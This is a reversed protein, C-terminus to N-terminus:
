NAQTGEDAAVFGRETLRRLSGDGGASEVYGGRALRHLAERWRAEVRPGQGESFEKGGTSISLGQNTEVVLITGDRKAAEALLTRAESSLDATEGRPGAKAASAAEGAQLGDSIRSVPTSSLIRDIHVQYAAAPQLTIGFQAGLEGVLQHIQAASDLRLANLNSLPGGLLAAPTGPALLPLLHREAGWRAGLEFLVYLSHMSADSVIGLFADAAYVERRLQQNTDAGGPLRYGDVSTCRIDRAELNLASRVLGVLEGALPADESAHSIFLRVTPMTVARATRQLAGDDIRLEGSAASIPEQPTTQTEPGSHSRSTTQRARGLSELTRLLDAYLRSPREMREKGGGGQSWIWAWMGALTRHPNPNPRDVIGRARLDDLAEDAQMWVDRYRIASAEDPMTARYSPIAASLGIIENIMGVVALPGSM